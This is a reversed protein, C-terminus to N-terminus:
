VWRRKELQQRESTLEQLARSAQEENPPMGHWKPQNEMEKVGKGPITKALIITPKGKIKEAKKLAKKIQKLNHGDITIVHWNFAQFKAALPELPMVDETFGDIQIFNRDMIFTLNDLKNNGAFMAAEWAQGEQHEGDSCCCYVRNRKGDRKLALAAGVAQSLGQALPGGSNEVGPIPGSHPHGQLLSNVKRFSWLHTKEFFGRNALTVYWIVCIHGNSLFVYDRGEWEPNMPDVRLHDYYLVTFVDAMGLPGATHGSKSLFLTKICEQRANNAILALEKNKM